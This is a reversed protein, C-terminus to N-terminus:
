SQCFQFLTTKVILRLTETRTEIIEYISSKYVVVVVGGGCVCVCVSGGGGYEVSHCLLLM